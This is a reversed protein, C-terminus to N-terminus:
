KIGYIKENIEKAADKMAQDVPKGELFALDMQAQWIQEFLTPNKSGCQMPRWTLDKDRAFATLMEWIMRQKPTAAEEFLEEPKYNSVTGVRAFMARAKPDTTFWKILKWAEAPYKTAKSITWSNGGYKNVKRAQWPIPIVTWDFTAKSLEGYVNWGWSFAVKGSLYAGMAMLEAEAPTMQVQYKNTLDVLFQIAEIAEPQDLLCKTENMAQPDDIIEGGNQWILLLHVWPSTGPSSLGWQVTKGDPDKKTTKQAANLLDEWRWENFQPTGYEPVTVGAEKCLDKNVWLTPNDEIWQPLGFFDDGYGHSFRPDLVFGEFDIPDEQALNSLPLIIGAPFLKGFWGSSLFYIDPGTGAAIEVLLKDHYGSWPRPEHKIKIDPFVREAEAMVEDFAHEWWDAVRLTVESYGIGSLISLFFMVCVAMGFLKPTKKMEVNM